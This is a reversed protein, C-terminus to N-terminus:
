KTGLEIYVLMPPYDGDTHSTALRDDTASGLFACLSFIIEFITLLFPTAGIKIRNKPMSPTKSPFPVADELADASLDEADSLFGSDCSDDENM